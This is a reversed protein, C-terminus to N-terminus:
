IVTLCLVFSGCSPYCARLQNFGLLLWLCDLKVTPRYLQSRWRRIDFLRSPSLAVRYREQSVLTKRDLLVSRWSWSGDLIVLAPIVFSTFRLLVCCRALRLPVFPAFSPFFFRASLGIENSGNRLFTDRMTLRMESYTM